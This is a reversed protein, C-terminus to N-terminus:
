GPKLSGRALKLSGRALAAVEDMSGSAPIRHWLGVDGIEIQSQAQVVAVDADSADAGRTAVRDLRAAAPAELWLADFAAGSQRAVREIREREAPQAFMADAVVSQGLSLAAAAMRDTTEYVRSAAQASYSDRSLRAEPPLGALRKRLVDTRLIRAGPVRGIAGALRRAVSSKGTGSLGGIAVLRPPAPTLMGAAHDLYSRAMAALTGDGAARLSQAALVHARIAARVSLFLPLLGVGSEDAPSLDLYRNFVINAGTRLNRHWLDMLLFALDYLVDITALEVSFELCDFLTPEGNILAINALHLDGHCHRVRGERARADLLPTMDDTMRLLSAGLRKVRDPDLIDPFPAMSAINGEVVRRFSAAGAQSPCAEAMAHFAAIRDALRMLLGEDLEGRDARHSFLADDPFRRMELLWDIAEGAGDIRLGADAERTVVHLALYLDPATRRNLRLEAELAAHRRGVTSFDLYDFRVSRKLKWARDGVLFLSACHTDIRTPCTGGFPLGRDLFAVVDAQDDPTGPGPSTMAM